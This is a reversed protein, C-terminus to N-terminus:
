SIRYMQKPVKFGALGCSANAKWDVFRLPSNPPLVIDEETVFSLTAEGEKDLNPEARLVIRFQRDDKGSITALLTGVHYIGM